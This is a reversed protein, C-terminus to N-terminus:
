AGHASCEPDREFRITRWRGSRSDFDLLRGERDSGVLGLALKLGELAQLAGVVGVLPGIVGAERCSRVAGEPPSHFLCRYCPSGAAVVVLQGSFGIAGGVVLPIKGASCWDNVTFKSVPDDSCELVLDAAALLGGVSGQDLRQLVPEVAIEPNLSSLAEALAAAKHRGLDASRFAVQRHLNDLAVLDPDVLRVRGVGAGALYLAAPGGLGGCGVVVATTRGLRLQGREGVGPLLLQRSYREIEPESLRDHTPEASM